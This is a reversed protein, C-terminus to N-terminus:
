STGYVRRRTLCPQPISYYCGNPRNGLRVSRRAIRAAKERVGLSSINIMLISSYKTQHFQIIHNWEITWSEDKSETQTSWCPWHQSCQCKMSKVIMFMQSTQSWVPCWNHTLSINTSIRSEQNSLSTTVSRPWPHTNVTTKCHCSSILLHNM